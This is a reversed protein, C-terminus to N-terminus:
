MGRAQKAQESLDFEKARSPAEPIKVPAAAPDRPRVLDLVERPLRDLALSGDILGQLTSRSITIDVEEEGYDEVVFDREELYNWRENAEDMERHENWNTQYMGDVLYRYRTRRTPLELTLSWTGDQQEELDRFIKVSPDQTFPGEVRVRNIPNPSTPAGWSFTYKGMPAISEVWPWKVPQAITLPIYNRTVKPTTGRRRQQVDPDLVVSVDEHFSATNIFTHWGKGEGQFIRYQFHFKDDPSSPIWDFAIRIEWVTPDVTSLKLEGANINHMTVDGGALSLKSDPPLDPFRAKIVGIFRTPAMGVNNPVGIFKTPVWVPESIEIPTIFNCKEGVSSQEGTTDDHSIKKFYGQLDNVENCKRVGDVIYWYDVFKKGEPISVRLTLEWFQYEPNWILKEVRKRGWADYIGTVFVEKVPPSGPWRFLCMGTRAQLNLVPRTRPKITAQVPQQPALIGLNPSSSYEPPSLPWPPVQPKLEGEPLNGRSLNSGPLKIQPQTDVLDNLELVNWDYEKQLSFFRRETKRTKDIVNEGNITFFYYIKGDFPGGPRPLELEIDGSVKAARYTHSREPLVHTQFSTHTFTGTVSASKIISSNGPVNYSFRYIVKQPPPNKKGKDPFIPFNPLKPM